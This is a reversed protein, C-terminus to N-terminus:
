LSPCFHQCVGTFHGRKAYHIYKNGEGTERLGKGGFDIPLKLLLSPSPLCSTLFAIPKNHLVVVECAKQCM